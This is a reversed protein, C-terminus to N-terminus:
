VCDVVDVPKSILLPAGTGRRLGESSAVEALVSLFEREAIFGQVRHHAVVPGSVHALEFIRDFM